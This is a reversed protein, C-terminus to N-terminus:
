NRKAWATLAGLGLYASASVYRELRLALSRRAFQSRLLGALMAYASDSILGLVIFLFGLFGIQAALSGRAPDVFQPLFALFFLATKPNLLNVIFGQWFLEAMPTRTLASLDILRDGDALRRIGLYVLYAAGTLKVATFANASSMLLASLGLAAAGVHLVSALHVGLVSVLGAGRGQDLSRAVVFVVVPGPVMLLLAAAGAFLVLTSLEPIM